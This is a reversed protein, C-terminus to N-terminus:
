SADSWDGGADQSRAEQARTRRRRFSASDPCTAWHPAGLTGDPNLNVPMRKGSKTIQWEISAHCKKCTAM